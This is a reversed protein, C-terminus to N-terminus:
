ILASITYTVTFTQGNPVDVAAPLVDRLICFKTGAGIASSIAYWGIEKITITAGSNNTFTRQAAFSTGAANTTPATLVTQLIHQIQGAGAGHLIQTQLKNDASTVATNGSGVVLGQASSNVPGDGQMAYDPNLTTTTGGTNTAVSSARTLQAYLFFNWAKLFSRCARKRVITKKGLKVEFYARIGPHQM